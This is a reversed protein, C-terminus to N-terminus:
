VSCITPLTLHTYSVSTAGNMALRRAVENCRPTTPIQSAISRTSTWGGSPSILDTEFVAGTAGEIGHEREWKDLVDDPTRLSDIWNVVTGGGLCSGALFSVGLDDTALFGRRLFLRATMDLEDGTFDADDLYEGKEIVIVDCGSAALEAAIVAGGAGSGVVVVDATLEVHPDINLTRIAKPRSSPTALKPDFGLDIWNPNSGNTSASYNLFLAPRKLAQFAQRLLPVRGSEMRRLARERIEPPMQTFGVRRGGLLLSFLPL